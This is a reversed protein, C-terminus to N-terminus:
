GFLKSSLDEWYPNDKEILAIKWQRCWKKLKKEREIATEISGFTEHYVLRHVKHKKTFGSYLDNKHESIRRVLDSTVGIYLTGATQSALIYVSGGKDFGVPM